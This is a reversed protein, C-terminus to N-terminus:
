FVMTSTTTIIIKRLSQTKQKGLKTQFQETFQICEVYNKIIAM